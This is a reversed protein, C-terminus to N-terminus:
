LQYESEPREPPPLPAPEIPPDDEAGASEIALVETTLRPLGDYGIGDNTVEPTMSQWGGDHGAQLRAKVLNLALTEPSPYTKDGLIPVDVFMRVEQTITKWVRVVTRM